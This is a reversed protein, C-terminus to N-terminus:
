GRRSRKTGFPMGGSGSRGYMMWDEDMEMGGMGMGGMGGLGRLGHIGMGGFGMKEKEKPMKKGVEDVLKELAVRHESNAKERATETKQIKDIYGDLSSIVNKIRESFVGLSERLAVVTNGGEGEPTTDMADESSSPPPLRVDRGMGWDIELCSRRQDLRGHIVGAYIADIVLSELDKVDQPNPTLLPSASPTDSLRTFLLPYPITRSIRMLTVITLQKLKKSMAPTLAPLSSQHELYEGWTGYAFIELLRYHGAFQEHDKLERVGPHNMVESFVYIGEAKLAELVLQAAAAGRNNKGTTLLLRVKPPPDLDITKSPGPAATSTPVPASPTTFRITSAVDDASTVAAM